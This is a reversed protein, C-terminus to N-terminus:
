KQRAANNVARASTSPAVVLTEDLEPLVDSGFSGGFPALPTWAPLLRALLM